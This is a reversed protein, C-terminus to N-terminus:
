KCRVFTIWAEAAHPAESYYTNHVHMFWWKFKGLEVFRAIWFQWPYISIHGKDRSKFSVDAIWPEALHTPVPMRILIYKKTIRNIEKIARYIEEIYLHELVDFATALEFYDDAFDTSIVNKLCLWPQVKKPAHQLAHKSVDIGWAQVKEKRMKSVLFGFGCGVDLVRGELKGFYKKIFEWKKIVEIQIQKNEEKLETGFHKEINDWYEKDYLISTSRNERSHKVKDM